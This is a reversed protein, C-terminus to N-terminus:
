PVGANTTEVCPFTSPSASSKSVGSRRRSGDGPNPAAAMSRSAGARNSANRLFTASRKDITVPRAELFKSPRVHIRRNEESTGPFRRLQLRLGCIDLRARAHSGRDPYSNWGPARLNSPDPGEYGRDPPRSLPRHAVTPGRRTDISRLRLRPLGLLRPHRRRGGNRPPRRPSRLESLIIGYASYYQTRTWRARWRSRSFM